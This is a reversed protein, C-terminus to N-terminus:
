SNKLFDNPLRRAAVSFFGKFNLSYDSAWIVVGRDHGYKDLQGSVGTSM